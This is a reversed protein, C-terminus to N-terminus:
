TGQHLCHCLSVCCRGGWYWGAEYTEHTQFWSKTWSSPFTYVSLWFQVSFVFLICGQGLAYSRIQFDVECQNLELTCSSITRRWFRLSQHPFSAVKVSFCTAEKTQYNRMTSVGWTITWCAPYVFDLHTWLNPLQCEKQCSKVPVLTKALIQILSSLNHLYLALALAQCTIQKHGSSRKGLSWWLRRRGLLISKWEWHWSRIKHLEFKIKEEEQSVKERRSGLQLKGLSLGLKTVAKVAQFIDCCRVM